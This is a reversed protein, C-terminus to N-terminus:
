ASRRAARRAVWVAGAVAAVGAAALLVILPLASEPEAEPREGPASDPPPEAGPEVGGEDIPGASPRDVNSPAIPEPEIPEPPDVGFEAYFAAYLEDAPIGTGAELADADSAGDRYAAAIRSIADRGYRDIILDVM